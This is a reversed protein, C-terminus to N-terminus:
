KNKNKSNKEVIYNFAGEITKTKDIGEAIITDSAKNKDLLYEDRVVNIVPEYKKKKDELIEVNILINNGYKKGCVKFELNSYYKGESLQSMNRFLADFDCSIGPNLPDLIIEKIKINSKSKDTSLITKNKPWPFSGNNELKLKFKLENTGKYISFNLNTSLCKFSYDNFDNITIPNQLNLYINKNPYLNPENKIYQTKLYTDEELKEEIKIIKKKLTTSYDAYFPEIKKIDEKQNIPIQMVKIAKRLDQKNMNNIIYNKQNKKDTETAVKKGIEQNKLNDEIVKRNEEVINQPNNDNNFSFNNQDKSNHKDNRTRKKNLFIETDNEEQSNENNQFDSCQEYKQKYLYNDLLDNNSKNEKETNKNYQNIGEKIINKDKNEPNWM